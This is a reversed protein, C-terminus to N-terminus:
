VVPNCKVCNIEVIEQNKNLQINCCDVLTKKVKKRIRQVRSKLTSYPIGLQEALEKQPVQRFDSNILLSREDEPMREIFPRICNHMCAIDTKSLMEDLNEAISDAEIDSSYNNKRFYDNIANRTISYVWSSIREPNRLNQKHMHIKVFVDQLIDDTQADDKVKSLIYGRLRDSFTEWIQETSM